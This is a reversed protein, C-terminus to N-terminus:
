FLWIWFCQPSNNDLLWRLVCIEGSDQLLVDKLQLSADAKSTVRKKLLWNQQLEPFESLRFSCHPAEKSSGMDIGVDEISCPWSWASASLLYLAPQGSCVYHTGSFLLSGMKGLFPAIPSIACIPWSFCQWFFTGARRGGNIKMKCCFSVLGM